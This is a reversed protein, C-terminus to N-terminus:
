YYPTSGIQAELDNIRKEAATLKARLSSQQDALHNIDEQLRHGMSRNLQTERDVSDQFKALEDSCIRETDDLSRGLTDLAQKKEM